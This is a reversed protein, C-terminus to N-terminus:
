LTCNEFTSTLVRIDYTNPEASHENVDFGVSLYNMVNIHYCPRIITKWEEWPVIREIQKFIREKHAASLMPLAFGARCYWLAFDIWHFIIRLEGFSLSPLPKISHKCCVACLAM